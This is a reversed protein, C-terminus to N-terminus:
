WILRHPDLLIKQGMCYNLLYKGENIYPEQMTDFGCFDESLSLFTDSNNGVTKPDVHIQVLNLHVKVAYKLDMKIVSAFHAVWIVITVCNM